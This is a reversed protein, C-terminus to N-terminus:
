QAILKDYTCDSLTLDERFSLFKGHRLRLSEMDFSMASVEIPQFAYAQSNAKIEDTLGSLYGISVIENGKKVGIELSGAWGYFYPKTVPELPAGDFYDDYLKGEIKEGTRTNEWYTWEMIEKGSYLRTPATTKGTFFCDITDLLEQKIKLTTKSPRKGPEYPATRETLVIGEGGSNLIEQLKEWLKQGCFYRAYSVFNESSNLSLRDINQLLKFRNQAEDDVHSMGHWALCDFAYFHLVESQAQREIAKSKLCGLITTVNKSGPSSPLYLEGLLCTGRPLAAFFDGLQPLWERKNAYEGNVGRSRSYVLINHDDDKVIKCFYGDKKEAGLYDGSFIKSRANQQKKEKTWSSPPCYYRMADLEGFDIGNIFGLKGM